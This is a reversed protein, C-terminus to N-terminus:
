ASPQSVEEPSFLGRLMEVKDSYEPQLLLPCQALLGPDTRLEAAFALCTLYGCQRCNTKPLLQYIDIV